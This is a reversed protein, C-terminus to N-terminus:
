HGVCGAFVRRLKEEAVIKPEARFDFAAFQLVFLVVSEHRWEDGMKVNRFESQSPYIAGPNRVYTIVFLPLIRM